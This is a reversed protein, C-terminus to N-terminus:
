HVRGERCVSSRPMINADRVGAEFMKDQGRSAGRVIERAGGCLSRWMEYREITQHAVGYTEKGEHGEHLCCVCVLPIRRLAAMMSASASASSGVNQNFVFPRTGWDCMPTETAQNFVFPRIIRTCIPTETALVTKPLSDPM